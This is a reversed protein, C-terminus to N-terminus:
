EFDEFVDDAANRMSEKEYQMAISQTENDGNSLLRTV